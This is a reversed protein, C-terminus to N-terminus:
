ARAEPRGVPRGACVCSAGFLLLRRTIGGRRVFSALRSRGRMMRRTLSRYSTDYGGEVIMRRFAVQRYAPWARACSPLARVVFRLVARRKPRLSANTPPLGVPGHLWPAHHSCTKQAIFLNRRHASCSRSVCWCPQKQRHRAKPRPARNSKGCVQVILFYLLQWGLYLLVPAVALWLWPRPPCPLPGLAAAAGGAATDTDGKCPWPGSGRGQAVAALRTARLPWTAPDLPTGALAGLLGQPGAAAAGTASAAASSCATDPHALGALALRLLLRLPRRTHAAYRHCYMALGPMLHILVSRPSPLRAGWARGCRTPYPPQPYIWTNPRPTPFSANAGPAQQFLSPMPLM